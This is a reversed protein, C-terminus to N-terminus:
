KVPSLLASPEDAVVGGGIRLTLRRFKEAFGTPWCQGAGVLAPECRSESVM